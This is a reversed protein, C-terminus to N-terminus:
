EVSNKARMTDRFQGRQDVAFVDFESINGWLDAYLCKGRGLQAAAIIGPNCMEESLIKCSPFSQRFLWIKQCQRRITPSITSAAQSIFIASHGRHRTRTALKNRHQHDASMARGIAEGAEDVILLCRENSFVVRIYEDTDGTVFHADDWHQGSPDLVLVPVGAGAARRVM